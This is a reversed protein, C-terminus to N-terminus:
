LNVGLRKLQRETLVKYAKFAGIEIEKVILEMDFVKLIGINLHEGTYTYKWGREIGLGGNIGYTYLTKNNIEYFNNSGAFYDCGKIKKVLANLQKEDKFNYLSLGNIRGSRVKYVKDTTGVLFEVYFRIEAGNTLKAKYNDQNIDWSGDDNILTITDEILLKGWFDWNIAMQKIQKQIAKNMSNVLYREVIM